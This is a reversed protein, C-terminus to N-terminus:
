SETRVTKVYEDFKRLSERKDPNSFEPFEMEASYCADLVVNWDDDDM